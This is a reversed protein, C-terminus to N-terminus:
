SSEKGGKSRLWQVEKRLKQNETEMQKIYEVAGILIECKSPKQQDGQATSGSGNSEEGLGVVGPDTKRRAQASQLNPVALRLKDLHMNLNERYRREVATHPLRQKNRRSNSTNSNSRVGEGRATHLVDDTIASDSEASDSTVTRKPGGPRRPRQASLQQPPQQQQEGGPPFLPNRYATSRMYSTNSHGTIPELTGFPRNALPPTNFASQYSYQLSQESPIYRADSYEAGEFSDQQYQNSFPPATTMTVDTTPPQCYPMEMSDRRYLHTEFPDESGYGTDPPLYKTDPPLYHQPDSNRHYSVHIQPAVQDTTLSQNFDWASQENIFPMNTEAATTVPQRQARNNQLHAMGAM